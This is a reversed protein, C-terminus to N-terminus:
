SVDPCGARGLSILVALARSTLVRAAKLKNATNILQFRALQGM